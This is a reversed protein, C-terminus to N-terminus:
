EAVKGYLHKAMSEFIKDIQTESADASIHVQIDIHLAPAPSEVDKPELVLAEAADSVNSSVNQVAAAGNGSIAEFDALSCLAKFTSVMIRVTNPAIEPNSARFYTRLEEDARLNADPYTEFLKSYGERIADALVPKARSHDLYEDWRPTRSGSSEIFNIFELIGKIRRDNQSSFGISDLWEKSVARPAGVKRIKVFFEDIKSTANMYPYEAM